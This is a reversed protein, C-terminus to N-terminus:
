VYIFRLYKSVVCSPIPMSWAGNFCNMVKNGKVWFGKHCKLKHKGSSKVAVIEGNAIAMRNCAPPKASIM